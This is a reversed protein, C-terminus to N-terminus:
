LSAAGEYTMQMIYFNVHKTHFKKEAEAYSNAVMTAKFTESGYISEYTLAYIGVTRLTPKPPTTEATM